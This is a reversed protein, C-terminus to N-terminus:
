CEPLSPAFDSVREFRLHEPSARPTRLDSRSTLVPPAPALFSAEPTWVMSELAFRLDCRENRCPFAVAGV